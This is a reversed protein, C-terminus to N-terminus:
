KVDYDVASSTHGGARRLPRSLPLVRVGRLRTEPTSEPERPDSETGRQITLGRSNLSRDNENESESESYELWNESPHFSPGQVGPIHTDRTKENPTDEADYFEDSLDDLVETDGPLAVGFVPLSDRLTAVIFDHNKHFADPTLGISQLDKRILRWAEAEDETLSADRKGARVEGIFKTLLREVNAQSSRTMESTLLNLAQINSTIRARIDQIQEVGIGFREFQVQTEPDVHDFREKMQSLDAFADDCSRLVANLTQHETESPNCEGFRQRTLTLVSNLIGLDSQVQSFLSPADLSSQFLHYAKNITNSIHVDRGASINGNFLPGGQTNQNYTNFSSTISGHNVGIQLGRNAGSFAINSM